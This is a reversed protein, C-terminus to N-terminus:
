RAQGTAVATIQDGALEFTWFTSMDGWTDNRFRVRLRLGSDEAHEVTFQGHVNFVERDIWETVAQPRGDDSLTAGPALVALFAARDGANIADILRAVPGPLESATM